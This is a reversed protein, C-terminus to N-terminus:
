RPSRSTRYKRDSLAIWWEPLNNVPSLFHPRVNQVRSSVVELRQPIFLYASPPDAKIEEQLEVWIKMALARNTEGLAVSLLSDVVANSYFGNNLEDISTSHVVSSPDGYVNPNLAGFYSDFNGSRVQALGAALEISRIKVKAGVAAFNERLIVAGKTRVPDAQRTLIEFELRVGNRDLYGDGDSDKWGVSKLLAQSLQPDYADPLVDHAFNWSVQAVPSVASEGYGGLLTNIMRKRDIAFSLARRTESDEFRPNRCNWMLYYFRRGGTKIIEFNDNQQLRLADDSSVGSVFDVEGSELSLVRAAPEKIIRFYVRDLLAKTGSYKENRELILGSSHDWSVFKFPGSSVPKQNISWESVLAPKLDKIIHLPLVAHATRSLPDPLVKTFYYRLSFDDIIEVNKVNRYLGRSPSAVKPDKFLRFSAAVDHATLSTGDEWLWPNLTYTISLSDAALEWHHAIVPVYVLDENLEVMTDMIEAIVFGAEASLKILPNLVDPDGSLAVVAMGGSVPQSEKKDAAGNAGSSQPSKGDCGTFSSLWVMLGFILALSTRAHNNFQFM